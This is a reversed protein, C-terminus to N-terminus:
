KLRNETAHQTERWATFAVDYKKHVRRAYGFGAIMLLLPLLVWWDNGSLARDKMPVAFYGFALFSCFGIMVAAGQTRHPYEPGGKYPDVYDSQKELWEKQAKDHIVSLLGAYLFAGITLAILPNHVWEPVDMFGAVLCSTIGIAQAVLSKTKPRKPADSPASM